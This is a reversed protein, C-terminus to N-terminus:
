LDGTAHLLGIFRLLTIVHGERAQSAYSDLMNKSVEQGLFAGMERAIKERPLDSEKLAAAVARCMRTSLSAGRVAEAPFRAVAQPPEWALLDLQQRGKM